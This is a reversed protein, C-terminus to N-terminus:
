CHTAGEEGDTMFVKDVYGLQGKKPKKSADKRVEKNPVLSSMGILITKDNVEVNERIVCHEDLM